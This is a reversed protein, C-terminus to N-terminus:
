RGDAPTEEDAPLRVIIHLAFLVVQQRLMDSYTTGFKNAPCCEKGRLGNTHEALFDCRCLPRQQHYFVHYFDM